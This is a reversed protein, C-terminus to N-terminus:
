TPATVTFLPDAPGNYFATAYATFEQNAFAGVAGHDHSGTGAGPEVDITIATKGAAEDQLITAQSLQVRLPSTSEVFGLIDGTADNTVKLVLAGSLESEQTWVIEVVLGTALAPIESPWVNRSTNLYTSCKVGQHEHPRSQNEMVAATVGCDVFGDFSITEHFPKADPLRQLTFNLVQHAGSYASIAGSAPLYGPNTVVVVSTVGAATDLQYHGADDTHTEVGADPLAVRAGPLPVLGADVVWGEIVPPATTTAKPTPPHLCGSIVLGLAFLVSWLPPHRM